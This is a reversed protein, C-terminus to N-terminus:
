SDGAQDSCVLSVGQPSTEIRADCPTCDGSIRYSQCFLSIMGILLDGFDAALAALQREKGTVWAVLKEYKKTVSAVEAELGNVKENLLHSSVRVDKVERELDVIMMQKLDVRCVLEYNQERLGNTVEDLEEIRDRYMDIFVESNLVSAKLGNIKEELELIQGDKAEIVSELRSNENRISKIISITVDLKAELVSVAETLVM